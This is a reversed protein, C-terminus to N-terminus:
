EKERNLQQNWNNTICYSNAKGIAEGVEAQRYIGVMVGDIEVYEPKSPLSDTIVRNYQKAGDLRARIIEDQILLMFKDATKGHMVEWIQMESLETHNTIKQGGCLITLIKERLEENSM